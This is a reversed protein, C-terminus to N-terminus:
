LEFEIVFDINAKGLFAEILKEFHELFIDISTGSFLLQRFSYNCVKFYWTIFSIARYRVTTVNISIRFFPVAWSHECPKVFVTSHIHCVNAHKFVLLFPAYAHKITASNILAVVAVKFIIKKTSRAPELHRTPRPVNAVKLIPQLFVLLRCDYKIIFWPLVVQQKLFTGELGLEIRIRSKAKNSIILGIINSINFIM